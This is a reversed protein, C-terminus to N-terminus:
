SSARPLSGWVGSGPHPHQATSQPKTASAAQHGWGPQQGRRAAAHLFSMKTSSRERETPRVRGPRTPCSQSEQCWQRTRGWPRGRRGGSCVGTTSDGACVARSRPDRPEQAQCKPGRNSHRHRPTREARPRPARASPACGGRPHSPHGSSAPASVTRAPNARLFIGPRKRNAARKADESPGRGASHPRSVHSGKRM